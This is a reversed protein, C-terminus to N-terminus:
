SSGHAPGPRPGDHSGARRPNWPMGWQEPALRKLMRLNGERLLRFLELSEPARISAYDGFEAWKDQDFGALLVGPNEIMQRYRWSSTIEDDALHAIIESISWKKPAPRATLIEESVGSILDSLISAARAQM